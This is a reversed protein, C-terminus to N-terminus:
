IESRNKDVTTSRVVKSEKVKVPKETSNSLKKVKPKDNRVMEPPIKNDPEDGLMDGLLSAIGRTYLKHNNNPDGPLDSNEETLFDIEPIDPNWVESNTSTQTTELESQSSIHEGEELDSVQSMRTDKIYIIRNNIKLKM